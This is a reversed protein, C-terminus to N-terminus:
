TVSVLKPLAMRTSDNGQCALELEKLLPLDKSIYRKHTKTKWGPGPGAPRVSSKSKSTGVRDDGSSGVVQDPFPCYGVTNTAGSQSRPALPYM